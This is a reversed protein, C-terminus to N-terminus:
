PQQREFGPLWDLDGDDDQPQPPLISSLEEDVELDFAYALVAIHVGMSTRLDGLALSFLDAQGYGYDRHHFNRGYPGASEIFRRCAARMARISTSLSGDPKASDLQQTLFARIQNASEVCHM